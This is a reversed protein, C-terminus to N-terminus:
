NWNYNTIIARATHTRMTQTHMVLALVAVLVIECYYYCSLYIMATHSTTNARKVVDVADHDHIMIAEIIIQKMTPLHSRHTFQRVHCWSHARVCTKTFTRYGSQLDDSRTSSQFDCKKTCAGGSDIAWRNSRLFSLLWIPPSCHFIAHTTVFHVKCRYVCSSEVEAVLRVKIREFCSHQVNLDCDM